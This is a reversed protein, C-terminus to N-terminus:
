YHGNMEDTAEEGSSPLNRKSAYCYGKAWEQRWGNGWAIGLM